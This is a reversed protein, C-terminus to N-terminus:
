LRVLKQTLVQSTTTLKVLYIGAALSSGPLEFRSRVGADVAGTYLRKVLRGQQDYLALTALGDKPLSFEVSAQDTFPSPYVSLVAHDPLAPASADEEITAAV